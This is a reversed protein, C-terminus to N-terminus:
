AVAKEIMEVLRAPYDHMAILIQLKAPIKEPDLKALLFEKRLSDIEIQAFVDELTRNEKLLLNM